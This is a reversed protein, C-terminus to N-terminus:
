KSTLFRTPIPNDYRGALSCLSASDIGPSWLLKFISDRFILVIRPVVASVQKTPHIIHPPPSPPYTLPVLRLFTRTPLSLYCPSTIKLSPPSRGIIGFALPSAWCPPPRGPQSSSLSRALHSKTCSPLDFAAQGPPGCWKDRDPASRNSFTCLFDGDHAIDRLSPM